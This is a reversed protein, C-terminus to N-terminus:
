EKDGTDTNNNSEPLDDFENDECFLINEECTPPIYKLQDDKKDVHKQCGFAFFIIICKKMAVGKIIM